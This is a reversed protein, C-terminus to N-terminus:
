NPRKRAPQCVSVSDKKTQEWERAYSAPDAEGDTGNKKAKEEEGAKNTNASLTRGTLFPMAFVSVMENVGLELGTWSNRCAGIRLLGTTQIGSREDHKPSAFTSSFARSLPYIVANVGTTASIEHHAILSIL